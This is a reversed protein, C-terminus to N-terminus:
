AASASRIKEVIKTTSVGEFMPALAVEGVMEFGVIDRAEYQAGKVIVDPRLREILKAPTDEDFSAVYDVCQLAALAELRDKLGIIPRSDGKLRRISEDSNVGVVLKAGKSKAFMLTEIHGVHLLDFCGNTFVLKGQTEGPSPLLYKAKIPDVKKMLDYPTIPKNREQQVYTAGATFAILACDSLSFNLAKAMAMFAIFCDGAGIVSEATLNYSSVHEFGEGLRDMGVVGSAGQTIVVHDCGLHDFFYLCQDKWNSLGSLEKAEVNNPKFITCGRWKDLPGKKPDIITTVKDRIFPCPDNTFLGKNYDSLILVQPPRNSFYRQTATGRFGKLISPDVGFNPKEIDWRFSPHKGDYFRKKRPVQGHGMPALNVTAKSGLVKQLSTTAEYDSLGYLLPEANWHKFQHCVNAAGGPMTVTPKSDASTMVPIPFEPSIRTASVDYYEDIIIDGAISIRVKNRSSEQIFKEILKM